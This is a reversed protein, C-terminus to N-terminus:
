QFRFILLFNSHVTISHIFSDRFVNLFTASDVDSIRLGGILTESTIVDDGLAEAMPFVRFYLFLVFSFVNRVKALPLSVTKDQASVACTTWDNLM